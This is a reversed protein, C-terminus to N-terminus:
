GSAWVDANSFPGSMMRRFVPHSPQVIGRTRDSVVQNGFDMVGSPIASGQTWREPSERIRQGYLAHDFSAERPVTGNHVHVTPFFLSGPSRTRFRLAMPHVEAKGARLQFVAFGYDAYAPLSSWVAPDLRFRADLRDFDAVTPVFSADFAGVREVALRQGGGAFVAGGRSGRRAQPAPFCRRLHVFFQPYDELSVFKLRPSDGEQAVPLPLIMAVDVSTELTMSYVLFQGDGDRRAFISTGSVAEINGSFCCM